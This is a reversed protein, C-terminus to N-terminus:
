GKVCSFKKGESLIAGYMQLGAIIESKYRAQHGGVRCGQVFESSSISVINPDCIYGGEDM